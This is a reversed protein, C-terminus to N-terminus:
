RSPDREKQTDRLGGISDMTSWLVRQGRRLRQGKEGQKTAMFPRMHGMSQEPHQSCLAPEPLSSTLSLFLSGPSM